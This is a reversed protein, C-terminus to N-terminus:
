LYRGTAQTATSPRSYRPMARLTLAIKLVHYRIFKRLPRQTWALLRCLFTHFRGEETRPRNTVGMRINRTRYRRRRPNKLNRFRGQRAHRPRTPLAHLPRTENRTRHEIRHETASIEGLRGSTWMDQHTELMVFAVNGSTPTASKTSTLPTLPLKGTPLLTKRNNQNLLNHDMPKTPNRPENLRCACCPKSRGAPRIPFPM